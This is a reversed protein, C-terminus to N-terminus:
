ATADPEDPGEMVDPDNADLLLLESARIRSFHVQDRNMLFQTGDDNVAMSFHNSVAEHMKLRETWRFAAALDVREQWHDMNPRLETVTM